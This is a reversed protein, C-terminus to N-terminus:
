EADILENLAAATATLGQRRLLETVERPTQVPNRRNACLEEFAALGLEPDSKLLRLLFADPHEGLLGFSTLIPAPFDRLNATVLVTAGCHIAAALVHRDDADPLTLSPILTEYGEVVAEDIEAEMLRRTREIQARTIDPRNRLLATIWEEHVRASWRPQFLDNVAFHMLMNRLLAPYLVSADLFAVITAAENM